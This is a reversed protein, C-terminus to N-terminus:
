LSPALAVGDHWRRHVIGSQPRMGTRGAMLSSCEGVAHLRRQEQLWEADHYKLMKAAWSHQNLPRKLHEDWSTVLRGWTHSWRGYERAKAAALRSSRQVFAAPEECDRKKTGMLIRVMKTQTRDIRKAAHAQYPWRSMRYAAIPLVCRQLQGLKTKLPAKRMTKGFNGYFSRWMNSLTKSLCPAIRGDDALVHGLAAFTDGHTNAWAMTLADPPKCGLACMFSKSDAGIVLNRSHFLHQECDQLISVADEASHGTSFINDVYTALALTDTTTKFALKEWCHHRKQIVDEVPVRGLLGATRTGTLAGVTRGKITICSVGWSLPVAPCCHLRLLCAAASASCGRNVLYHHIRVVPISDYYRRIDMQAIAARGHM